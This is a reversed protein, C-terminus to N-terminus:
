RVEELDVPDYTSIWEDRGPNGWPTVILRGSPSQGARAVRPIEPEQEEARDVIEEFDTM